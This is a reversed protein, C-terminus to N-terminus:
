DSLPHEDFYQKTITNYYKGNTVAVFGWKDVDDDEYEDNKEQVTVKIKSSGEIDSEKICIIKPIVSKHQENNSPFYYTEGIWSLYNNRDKLHLEYPRGLHKGFSLRRNTFFLSSKALLVAMEEM